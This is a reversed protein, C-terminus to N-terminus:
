KYQEVIQIPGSTNVDVECAIEVARKLGAKAHLAGIAYPSGSGVGYIGNGSRCVSLDDAIDFLEGGVAILFNFRSEDSKGEGKGESFDYGNDTLCKRLSAMVKTIMFHYIDAKDKPTLKLPVWLHQIVDCPQVEGSGAILFEGRQSIKKMDPHNFRRGTEGTVQNDAALVCKDAYQVGIITTM